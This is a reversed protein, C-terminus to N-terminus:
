KKMRRHVIKIKYKKLIDSIRQKHTCYRKAIETVTIHSNIYIDCIAKEQEITPNFKLCDKITNEKMTIWQCNSPEYNGDNNIRDITLGKKGDMVLQGIIFPCLIMEGNMVFQSEEEEM